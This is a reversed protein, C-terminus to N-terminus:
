YGKGSFFDYGLDGSFPDFYEEVLIKSDDLLIKPNLKKIQKRLLNPYSLM